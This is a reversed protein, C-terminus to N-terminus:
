ALDMEKILAVAAWFKFHEDNELKILGEGIGLVTFTTLPAEPYTWKINVRQGVLEQMENQGGEIHHGRTRRLGVSKRGFM